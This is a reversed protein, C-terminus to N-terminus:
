VSDSVILDDGAHVVMVQQEERNKIVPHKELSFINVPVLDNFM